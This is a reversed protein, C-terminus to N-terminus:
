ASAQHLSNKEDDLGKITMREYACKLLSRPHLPHLDHILEGILVGGYSKAENLKAARVRYSDYSIIERNGSLRLLSSVDEANYEERFKYTRNGVKVGTTKIREIEHLPMIMMRQVKRDQDLQYRIGCTDIGVVIDPKCRRGLLSFNQRFHKLASESQPLLNRTLDGESDYQLHGYTDMVVFDTCDIFDQLLEPSYKEMDNSIGLWVFKSCSLQGLQSTFAPSLYKSNSINIFVGDFGYLQLMLTEWFKTNFDLKTKQKFTLLVKLYPFKLRLANLVPRWTSVNDDLEAIGDNIQLGFFILHTLYQWGAYTEINMYDQILRRLGAASLFGGVVLGGRRRLPAEATEVRAPSNQPTPCAFTDCHM